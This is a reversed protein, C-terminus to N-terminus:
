EGGKTDDRLLVCLSRVIAFHWLKEEDIAQRKRHQRRKGWNNEKSM